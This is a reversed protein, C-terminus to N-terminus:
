CPEITKSFTLRVDLTCTLRCGEPLRSFIQNLEEDCIRHRNKWKESECSSGAHPSNEYCYASLAECYRELDKPRINQFAVHRGGSPVGYLETDNRKVNKRDEPIVRAEKGLSSEFIEGHGSFHFYRYDQKRADQVLWDLGKLINKKTPQCKYRTADAARAMLIRINGKEYGHKLLMHYINLIDNPTGCLPKHRADTEYQGGVLLARREVQGKPIYATKNTPISDGDQIANRLEEWLVSQARKQAEEGDPPMPASVVAESTHIWAGPVYQEAGEPVDVNNVVPAQVEAEVKPKSQFSPLSPKSRSKEWFVSEHQLKTDLHEESM